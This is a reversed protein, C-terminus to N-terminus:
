SGTVSEVARRALRPDNSVIGAVGATALRAILAPDDVTWVIVGLGLRTAIAVAAEPDATLDGHHPLVWRHGAAAVPPSDREPVWGPVFLQGTPISPAVQRMRALTAPNFSSVLIRGAVDHREAWAAVAAATGHEPDFGPEAPDNKIEVDIVLGALVPTVEDLTPVEPAGARIADLDLGAIPGLGPLTPDHHVMLMGDASCRVDLEVGDAGHKVALAFAAITNGPAFASAGRHGLVLPRDPHPSILV